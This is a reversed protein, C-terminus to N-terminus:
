SHIKNSVGRYPEHIHLGIISNPKNDKVSKANLIIKENYIENRVSEICLPEFSRDHDM